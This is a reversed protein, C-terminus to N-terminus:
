NKGYHIIISNELQSVQGMKEPLINEIRRIILRISREYHYGNLNDQLRCIIRNGEVTLKWNPIVKNSKERENFFQFLQQLIRNYNDFQAQITNVLYVPFEM